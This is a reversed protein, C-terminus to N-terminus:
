GAPPRLAVFPGPSAVSGSRAPRGVLYIFWGAKSGTSTTGPRSSAASWSTSPGPRGLHRHLPDAIDPAAGRGRGRPSGGPTTPASWTSPLPGDGLDRARLRAECSWSDASETM